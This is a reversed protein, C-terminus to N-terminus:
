YKIERFSDVVLDAGKLMSKPQTTSIAAVKLGARKAAQVGAASDELVLLKNKPVSLKKLSTRYIEPHPKSHSIEEGTVLINFYNNLNNIKLYKKVIPMNSGTVIYAPIERRKLSAVYSKVGQIPRSYLGPRDLQDQRCRKLIRLVDGKNLASNFKDGLYEGRKRGVFSKFDANSLHLGYEKLVKGLFRFRQRESDVIVGDFDFIVAKPFPM